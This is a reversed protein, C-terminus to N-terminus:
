ESYHGTIKEIEEVAKPNTSRYVELTTYWDEYILNLRKLENTIDVRQQHSYITPKGNFHTIVEKDRLFKEDIYNDLIMETVGDFHEKPTVKEQIITQLSDIQNILRAKEIDGGQLFSDGAKCRQLEDQQQFYFFTMITLGLLSMALGGRFKTETTM